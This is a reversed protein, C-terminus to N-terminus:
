WNVFFTRYKNRYWSEIITRTKEVKTLYVNSYFNVQMSFAFTFFIGKCYNNWFQFQFRAQTTRSQIVHLSFNFLFIYTYIISKNDIWFFKYLIVSDTLPQILSLLCLTFKMTKCLNHIPSFKSFIAWFFDFWKTEKKHLRYLHEATTKLYTICCWLSTNM